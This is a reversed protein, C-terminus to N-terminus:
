ADKTDLFGESNIWGKQESELYLGFVEIPVTKDKNAYVNIKPDAQKGCWKKVDDVTGVPLRMGDDFMVSNYIVRM